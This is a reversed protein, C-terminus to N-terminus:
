AGLQHFFHCRLGTVLGAITGRGCGYQCLSNDIYTQLVYRGASIRQVQFATNVFGYGCYYGLDLFVSLYYAVVEVLDLLYGGYGGIVVGLDALQNGVSHALYAFVAHDCDAFGFAHVRRNVYYM